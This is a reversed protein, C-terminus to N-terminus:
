PGSSPVAGTTTTTPPMVADGNGSPSPVPSGSPPMSGHHGASKAGSRTSGVRTVTSHGHQGPLPDVQRPKSSAPGGGAIETSPSASRTAAHSSPQPQVTGTVNTPALRPPMTPTANATRWGSRHPVSTVM